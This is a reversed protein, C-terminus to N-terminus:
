GTNGEPSHSPTCLPKRGRQHAAHTSNEAAKKIAVLGPHQQGAYLSPFPLLTWATSEYQLCLAHCFPSSSPGTHGHCQASAM